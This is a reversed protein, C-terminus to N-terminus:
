DMHTRHPNKFAIAVCAGAFAFGFVWPVWVKKRPFGSVDYPPKPEEREAALTAAPASLVLFLAALVGLHAWRRRRMRM